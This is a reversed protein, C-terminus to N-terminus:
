QVKNPRYEHDRKRLVTAKVIKTPEDQARRAAPDIKVINPMNEMGEVVRGFVTHMGNLYTTPVFNIFFQSGGTHRPTEKAMSISGAFHNRHNENICECYIKYGPGGTGDGIPCGGQAMFGEMVRHFDLGDYFGKEVLSVFNGVTEPAENEFLELVFTGATTELEVRPLDDAASEEERITKESEWAKKTAALEGYFKEGLEKLSGDASAAELHVEATDFDNLAYAVIGALNDLDREDCQNDILPKLMAFAGPYNDKRVEDAAMKIIMRALDRDANPSEQYAAVAREQLEPIMEAGEARRTTWKERIGDLQSDDALQYSARIDRLETLCTRWKEFTENFAERAPGVDAATETTENDAAPEADQATALSAALCAGFALIPISKSLFWFGRSVKRM